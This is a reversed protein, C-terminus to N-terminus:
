SLLVLHLDKEGGSCAFNLVLKKFTNWSSAADSNAHLKPIWCFRYKAFDSTQINCIIARAKKSLRASEVHAQLVPLFLKTEDQKTTDLKKADEMVGQQLPTKYKTVTVISSLPLSLSFATSAQQRTKEKCLYPAFLSFICVNDEQRFFLRYNTVWLTGVIVQTILDSTVSIVNTLPIPTIM